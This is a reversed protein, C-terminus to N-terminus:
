HLRRRTGNFAFGKGVLSLLWALMYIVPIVVICIIASIIVTKEPKDKWNLVDYIGEGDKSGNGIGSVSHIFTWVAYLIGYIVVFVIQKLRLPIRAVFNGDILILFVLIGHTYITAYYINRRGDYVLVWYLITILIETPVCLAYLFWTIKLSTSLGEQFDPNPQKLSERQLTLVCVSMQYAISFILGQNTLYGLYLFRDEDEEKSISLALSVISWVLFVIRVIIIHHFRNSAPAFSDAVDIYQGSPERLSMITGRVESKFYNSLGINGNENGVESSDRVNEEDLQAM